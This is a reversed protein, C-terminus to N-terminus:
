TEEEKKFLLKIAKKDIKHNVTKPVDELFLIKVPIKYKALKAILLQQVEEQTYHYGSQCSVAAAPVEGFIEDEMAVVAAERIGELEYIAKEIDISPVKEAGRNIIDKKRDCIFLYGDEDLYGMDGTQLWGDESILENGKDLYREIITSGRLCIEGMEGNPLETGNEATIKCELGPIPYGCSGIKKSNAANGPFITGPSATETMGYIPCFRTDPLWQAYQKIKEKAIWAGGCGILRLSPLEPFKDKAELLMLYVTPACHMYTVGYRKVDSLVQEAQFRAHLILTGGIVLFTGLLASLGTIHYIPVPIIGVERETLELVRKYAQAAHMLHYNKLVAGKSASTTGSTFMILIEDELFSSGTISIKKETQYEELGYGPETDSVTIRDVNMEASIEDFWTFFKKDCLIMKVQAMRVLAEVEPKKYKSPLPCVIAGIRILAIYAVCFEISNFMMLAVRDGKKIKKEGVLYEAFRDIRFLLDQYTCIRDRSDILAAKGAYKEANKKVAEYLNAPMNKYTWIKKGGIEAQYMDATEKEGWLDIGSFM